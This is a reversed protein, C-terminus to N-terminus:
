IDVFESSFLRNNIFDLAMVRGGRTTKCNRLYNEVSDPWLDVDEGNDLTFRWGGFKNPKADQPILLAVTQWKSLPVLVDWDNPPESTDDLIFKAASGVLLGGFVCMQYVQRPLLKTGM